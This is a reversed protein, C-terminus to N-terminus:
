RVHLARCQVLAVLSSVEHSAPSALLEGTSQKILRQTALREQMSQLSHLVTRLAELKVQQLRPNSLDLVQRILVAM